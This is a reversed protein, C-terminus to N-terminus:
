LEADRDPTTVPAASRVTQLSLSKLQFTDTFGQKEKATKATVTLLSSIM